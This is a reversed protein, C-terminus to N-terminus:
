LPFPRQASFPLNFFESALPAQRAALMCLVPSPVSHGFTQAVSTARSLSLSLSSARKSGLEARGNGTALLVEQSLASYQDLCFFNYTRSDAHGRRAMAPFSFSRFLFRTLRAMHRAALVSLTHNVSVFNYLRSAQRGDVPFSFSLFLFRTNVISRPKSM